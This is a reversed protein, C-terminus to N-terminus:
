YTIIEEVVEMDFGAPADDKTVSGRQERKGEGAMVALYDGVVELPM